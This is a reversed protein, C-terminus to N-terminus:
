PFLLLSIPPTPSSSPIHDWLLWPLLFLHCLEMLKLFTSDQAFSTAKGILVDQCGRTSCLLSTSTVALYVREIMIARGWGGKEGGKLLYWAWAPALFLGWLLNRLIFVAMIWMFLATLWSVWLSLVSSSGLYGYTVKFFTWLLLFSLYSIALGCVLWWILMNLLRDVEREEVDEHWFECKRSRRDALRPLFCSCGAECVRPSCLQVPLPTFWHLYM